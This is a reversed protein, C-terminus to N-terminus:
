LGTGDGGAAGAAEDMVRDLLTHLAQLVTGDGDGVLLSGVGAALAVVASTLVVWEVTVAGSEDRCRLGLFKIALRIGDAMHM